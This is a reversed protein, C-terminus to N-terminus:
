TQDERGGAGFLAPKQLAIAEFTVNWDRLTRLLFNMTFFSTLEQSEAKSNAPIGEDADYTIQNTGKIM